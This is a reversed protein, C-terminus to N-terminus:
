QFIVAVQPELCQNEKQAAELLYAPPGPWDGNISETDSSPHESSAGGSSATSPCEEPHHARASAARENPLLKANAALAEEFSWGGRCTGFTEMNMADAGSEKSLREELKAILKEDDLTPDEVSSTAAHERKPMYVTHIRLDGERRAAKSALIIHMMDLLQDRPFSSTNAAVAKPASDLITANRARKKGSTADVEVQFRVKAGVHLRESSEKIDSCHLFVDNTGDNPTIFGFGRGEFVREVSGVCYQSSCSEMTQAESRSEKVADKHEIKVAESTRNHSSQRKEQFDRTLEELSKFKHARREEFERNLESLPRFVEGPSDEDDTEDYESEEESEESTSSRCEKDDKRCM